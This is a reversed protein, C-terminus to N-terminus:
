EVTLLTFLSCILLPDASSAFFYLSSCPSGPSTFIPCTQVPSKYSGASSGLSQERIGFHGPDMEGMPCVMGQINSAAM